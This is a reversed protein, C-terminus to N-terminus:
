PTGLEPATPDPTPASPRGIARIVSSPGTYFLFRGGKYLAVPLKVFVLRGANVTGRALQRPEFLYNLYLQLSGNRIQRQGSGSIEGPRFVNHLGGVYRWGVSLGGRIRTAM